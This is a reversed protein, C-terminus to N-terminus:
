SPLNGNMFAGREGEFAAVLKEVKDRGARAYSIFIDAM